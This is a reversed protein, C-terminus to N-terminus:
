IGLTQKVVEIVRKLSDDAVFRNRVFCFALNHELDACAFSGGAGGHGFETTSFATSNAYGLRHAPPPDGAPHDTPIRLELALRIREPPLLEVGDVGGPLLAAYHKAVSRASMIGNSAPLCARRTDPRNMWVHLPQILPPIALDTAAHPLPKDDEEKSELIAVRPEAADPIGCYMEDAMSLPATIEDRLIQGFLRGDVRRVVEGVLWSYTVAHYAFRAGPATVPTAAAMLDCMRDWNGLEEHTVGEPMNALGATHSLAHRLTISEKGNAAFEPWVSAIPTEYSVKGREVMLHALTAAIGKTTSFTPFLTDPAVKTTGTADLTGAYTDCVMEGNHYAAVQVGREAGGAVLQDLIDQIPKQIKM